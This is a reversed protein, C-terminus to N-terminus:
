VASSVGMPTLGAPVGRAALALEPFDTILGDVGADFFMRAEAVADGHAHEDSGVRLNAPLHKNEARHTWVLVELGRRHAREVFGSPAGVRDRVDRPLVVRRRVGVGTAYLSTRLLEYRAPMRQYLRVVRERPGLDRLARGDFSMWTLHPADVGDLLRPLALGQRSLFGCAKLEANVGLQRGQRASEQETLDMVQALTPIAYQGDYSASTSRKKQWRERARLQSLEAYTFDSVFWGTVPRAEVVQTRRLHAFEPRSAVDTTRSLEVDHRCVVVGDRTAVLDLEVADAGLRFALEYAALTHEPRHGSAGRHAIVQPLTEM